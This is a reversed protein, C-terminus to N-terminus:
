TAGEERPQAENGWVQWEPGRPEGRAFMELYPGKSRAQVREYAETPKASHVRHGDERVWDADIRTGLDHRETMVEPSMGDGHVGFLLLEHEGRFYQGLGMGPKNWPLNTVYRFGVQRMLWLGAELYNNTVWLYLHSDDFPRLLGSGRLVGPMEEARLLPYHNQAGRGGGGSETWPPDVVFTRFLPAQGELLWGQATAKM